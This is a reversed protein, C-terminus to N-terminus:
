LISIFHKFWPTAIVRAAMSIPAETISLCKVSSRWWTCWTFIDFIAIWITKLLRGGGSLNPGGISGPVRQSPLGQLVPLVSTPLFIQHNRDYFKKYIDFVKDYVFM